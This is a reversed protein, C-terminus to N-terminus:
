ATWPLASCIMRAFYDFDRRIVTVRIGERGLTDYMMAGFYLYEDDFLIRVETPLSVPGGQNPQFRTFSAIVEATEWDSERLRGDIRIPEAARTARVEPLREPPPFIEQSFAASPYLFFALLVLLTLPAPLQAAVMSRM